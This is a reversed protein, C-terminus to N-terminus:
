DLPSIGKGNNLMQWLSFDHCSIDEMNHKELARQIVQPTHDQSNLQESKLVLWMQRWKTGNRWISIYPEFFLALATNKGIHEQLRKWQQREGCQGPHHVRRCGTQQLRAARGSSLLQFIVAWPDAGSLLLQPRSSLLQLLVHLSQPLLVHRQLLWGRSRQPTVGVSVPSFRWLSLM